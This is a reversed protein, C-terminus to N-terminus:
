VPIYKSSEMCEDADGVVDIEEITDDAVESQINVHDFFVVIEDNPKVPRITQYIPQDKM